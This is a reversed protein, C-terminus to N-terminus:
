AAKEEKFRLGYVIEQSDQKKLKQCWLNNSYGKDKFIQTLNEMDQQSCIFVFRHNAILANGIIKLEAISLNYADLYAPINKSKEFITQLIKLNHQELYNDIHLKEAQSDIIFAAETQKNLIEECIEIRSKSKKYGKEFSIRYYELAKELSQEVYQGIQYFRGLHFFGEADDLNAALQYYKFAKELSQEVGIGQEYANAVALQGSPLGQDAALQAYRFFEKLDKRRGFHKYCYSLWFQAWAVNQDAAIKFYIMATNLSKNVGKGDFYSMGLEYFAEKLGQYAALQYYKFALEDSQAIGVGLKYFNGIQYCAIADEQDAAM